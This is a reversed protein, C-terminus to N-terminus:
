PSWGSYISVFTAVSKEFEKMGAVTAYENPSHANGGHGLGGILFPLGCERTFLYFPASGALTPWVQPEYGHYRYAQIAAQVVKEQVSTRSWPYGSIVNIEIDDFGHADLHNRIREVTSEVEMNRVLRVDVKAVAKHPLLTKSGPGYYGAAIGDINLTSDTLYKRLLGTKGDEWKFRVVDNEKLFTQPEFVSTLVTLLEEDEQSPGAVDDYYGEVLMRSDLSRMSTLAHLLRWVPSEILVGLAGHIGRVTPGGKEGGQCILEMFLIGKCGLHMNIRGQIDQSYFPFFVADCGSLEQRYEAIVEGLHKSGQEEEGEVVFRLNVPMKGYTQLFAHVVNFFGCLPGKSNEIGRSVLCPGLKPLSVIEGGFPPAMWEEGVVPQVDYMGYLVLTRPAGMDLEGYVVPHGSTPVIRATGGLGEIRRAVLAAMEEIGTGDASISPQRVFEQTWKLHQVWNQDIAKHIRQPEMKGGDEDLVRSAPDRGTHTDPPKGHNM